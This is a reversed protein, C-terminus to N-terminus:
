ALKLGNSMFAQVTVSVPEPDTLEPIGTGIIADILQRRHINDESLVKDWLNVDSRKLLYRAQYKYMSNENTIRILDDDNRGKEYAIYALYPDRKECYLGVNLTDYRDNEKLFKEPSNNSDIYIKALTNYVAQDQAGQSLTQELFPLLIKLRNRKEVEETLEGIPVQGLVTQLLNQIVKEDCDVDLLAAVVQATKAPNVQQVYVEIFKFNQSKYLYLILDHIYNFRDSVIVLPMQDPLQADKLFNKVKEPDYVNNEKVVREVEKYQGMKTAAQIYKFVVDKDETLNVLSALYYYM